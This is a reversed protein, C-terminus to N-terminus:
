LGAQSLPILNGAEVQARVEDEPRVSAGRMKELLSIQQSPTLGQKREEASIRFQGLDSVGMARIAEEAIRGAKYEMNLGTNNLIQLMNLWTEANRTPEIPLTGDVVLYDVDGQLDQVTFDIYDDEVMSALLGPTNYPDVRISGEYALTDQINSVMMRVMPRITTASLIRSLVGLRQSGLQTLRAIETATRVDATPVGQQADSAASVRQKLEGLSAIDDWHTRTVDPIQAVFFGEGAKTGPLTRVIGWPNRDILDPLSVVTPDAFILNNLAAQVNDVRSRLLWTALDHMPLLIDYLSQGYTKHADHYLSGIVVPFQQGYPNLQLRICVSEDMIAVLLWVTHLQPVGIEAGSLRVWAEDVVRASGLSFYQAGAQIENPKAPDIALGRGEERLWRHAEWGSTLPAHVYKLGPYMELKPYLGTQVLSEFSAFSTFVIFQMADWNGWSVRPDPFVRRPDFNVIQNTNSKADWVIKTPAFGYRVSDLLLQALRAEGATRRMHQHLLRELVAAVRRSRRNLGELMFMPNRGALAAMLYTLVTDAIARTDAIVAKERFRTAEPPVYVDHARDAERWHDYRKSIRDYSMKLMARVYEVIRTEQTEDLLHSIDEYRLLRDVHESLDVVIGEMPLPIPLARYHSSATLM